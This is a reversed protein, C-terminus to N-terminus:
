RRVPTQQCFVTINELCPRIPAQLLLLWYRSDSERSPTLPQTLAKCRVSQIQPMHRGWFVTCCLTSPNKSVLKFAPKLRLPPRAPACRTPGKAPAPPFASGDITATGCTCLRSAASLKLPLSCSCGALPSPKYPARPIYVPVRMHAQGTQNHTLAIRALALGGGLRSVIQLPIPLRLFKRFNSGGLPTTHLGPTCRGLLQDLFNSCGLQPMANSVASRLYHLCLSM